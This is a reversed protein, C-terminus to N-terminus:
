RNQEASLNYPYLAKFVPINELHTFAPMLADAAASVNKSTAAKASM